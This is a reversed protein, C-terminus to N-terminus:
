FLVAVFMQMKMYVYTKKGKQYIDLLPYAVDYLKEINEQSLFQWVM